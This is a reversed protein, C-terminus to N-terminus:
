AAEEQGKRSFALIFDTAASAAAAAAFIAKKDNKLITLYQAMYQAHDPRPDNTIGLEACLFAASLEAILEEFAYARDAFRKGKERNLRSEAGSHHALEHLITSYFAEQATSTETGFFAREDPISICDTLRNYCARSGGYEIRAGTAAIAHDVSAIREFLPREPM